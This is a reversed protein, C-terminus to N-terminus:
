SADGLEGAAPSPGWPAAPESSAGTSESGQGCGSGRGWPVCSRTPPRIPADAWPALPVEQGCPAPLCGPEAVAVTVMEEGQVVPLQWAGARGWTPPSSPVGLELVCLSVKLRKEWTVQLHKSARPGKDRVSLHCCPLCRAPGWPQTHGPLEPPLPARAPARPAGFAPISSPM